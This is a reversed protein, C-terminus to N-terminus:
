IMNNGSFIKRNGGRVEESIASSIVERRDEKFLYVGGLIERDGYTNGVPKSSYWLSDPFCVQVCTQMIRGFTEGNKPSTRFTCNSFVDHIESTRETLHSHLM